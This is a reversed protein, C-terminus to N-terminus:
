EEYIEVAHYTQHAGRFILGGPEDNLFVKACRSYSDSFKNFGELFRIHTLMFLSFEGAPDSAVTDPEVVWDGGSRM